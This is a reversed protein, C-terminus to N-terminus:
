AWIKQTSIPGIPASNYSNLPFIKKESVITGLLVPGPDNSLARRTRWWFRVEIMPFSEDPGRRGYKKRGSRVLLLPTMPFPEDRGRRGYKKRVSRALLLRTIVTQLSPKFPVLSFFNEKVIKKESVIAGVLVPSPDTSLARRVRVM